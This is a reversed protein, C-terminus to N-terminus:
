KFVIEDQVSLLKLSLFIERLEGLCGKLFDIIKVFEELSTDREDMEIAQVEIHISDMIRNFSDIIDNM